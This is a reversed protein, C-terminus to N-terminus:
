GDDDRQKAMFDHIFFIRSLLERAEMRSMELDLVQFVVPLMMPFDMVMQRNISRYVDLADATEPLPVPPGEGRAIPCGPGCEPSEYCTECSVKPYNDM